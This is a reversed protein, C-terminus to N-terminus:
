ENKAEVEKIDSIIDQFSWPMVNNTYKTLIKAICLLITIIAKDAKNM